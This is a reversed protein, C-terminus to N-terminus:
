SRGPQTASAAPLRLFSFCGGKPRAEQEHPGSASSAPAPESAASSVNGMRMRQAWGGGRALPSQPSESAATPSAVSDADQELVWFYVGMKKRRVLTGGSTPMPWSIARGLDSGRDSDSHTSERQSGGGGSRGAARDDAACQHASLSPLTPATADCNQQQESAMRANMM